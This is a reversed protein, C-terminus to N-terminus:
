QDISFLRFLAPSVRLTLMKMQSSQLAELENFKFGKGGFGSQVTLTWRRKCQWCVSFSFFLPIFFARLFLSVTEALSPLAAPAVKKSQKITAKIKDWMAQLQEPVQAGSLEM